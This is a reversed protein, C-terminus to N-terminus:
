PNSRELFRGVPDPESRIAREVYAVPNAVLRGGTITERVKGAWELDIARDTCDYLTQVIKILVPDIPDDPVRDSRDASQNGLYTFSRDSESVSEAISARGAGSRTGSEGGTDPVRDGGSQPPSCHPCGPDTRGRGIHWRKHNGLSGGQGMAARAEHVEDSTRQHELYDHIIYEGSGPQPCRKCGHGPAHWLDHDVLAKALKLPQRRDSLRPVIAQPVLGDTLNRSAYAIACVHLWAADGGVAAIKRNEPLDVAMKFYTRSDGGM